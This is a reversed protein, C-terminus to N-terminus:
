CNQLASCDIHKTIEEAWQHSISRPSVILTARSQVPAMGEKVWCHGCFYPQGKITDYNVCKSHQYSGCGRCQVIMELKPKQRVLRKRSKRKFMKVVPKNNIMQHTVLKNINQAIMRRQTDDDLEEDITNDSDVDTESRNDENDTSYNKNKQYDDIFIAKKHRYKSVDSVEGCVCAFCDESKM